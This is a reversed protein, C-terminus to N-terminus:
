FGVADTELIIFFFDILLSYKDVQYICVCIFKLRKLRVELLTCKLSFLNTLVPLKNVESKQHFDCNYRRFEWPKPSWSRTEGLVAMRQVETESETGM